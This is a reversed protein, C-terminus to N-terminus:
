FSKCKSIERHRLTDVLKTEINPHITRMYDMKLDPAKAILRFISIFTHKDKLSQNICLYTFESNFGKVFKHIMALFKPVDSCRSCSTRNINISSFVM